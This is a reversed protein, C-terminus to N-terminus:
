IVELELINTIQHPQSNLHPPGQTASPGAHARSAGHMKKGTDACHTGCNGFPGGGPHSGAPQRLGNYCQLESCAPILSVQIHFPCGVRPAVTFEDRQHNHELCDFTFHETALPVLGNQQHSKICVQEQPVMVLSREWSSTNDPSPDAGRVSCSGGHRFWRLSRGPLQAAEAGM